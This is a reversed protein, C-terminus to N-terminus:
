TPLELIDVNDKVLLTGTRGLDLGTARTMHDSKERRSGNAICVIGTM